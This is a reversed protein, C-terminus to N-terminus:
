HRLILKLAKLLGQPMRYYASRLQPRIVELYLRGYLWGKRTLAIHFDRAESRASSWSDKYADAPIMLDFAALGDALAQRQSFDMHLRAPSYDTLHEAHSTIFAYHTTGMRLGIEWSIPRGGARLESVVLRCGDDGSAALSKLFGPM